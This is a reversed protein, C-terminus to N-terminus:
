ADRKKARAKPLRIQALLARTAESCPTLLGPATAGGTRWGPGFDSRLRGEPAYVGVVAGDQVRLRAVGLSALSEPLRIKTAEVTSPTPTTPLNELIM